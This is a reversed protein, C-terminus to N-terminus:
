LRAETGIGGCFSSKLALPMRTALDQAKKPQGRQLVQWLPINEAEQAAVEQNDEHGRQTELGYVPQEGPESNPSGRRMMRLRRVVAQRRIVPFERKRM